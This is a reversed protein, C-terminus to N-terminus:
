QPTVWFHAPFLRYKHIRRDGQEYTEIKPFFSPSLVSIKDIEDGSFEIRLIEKGTVLYVDIIGGRVRFTGPKFDIDNRQYQLATLHALFDKRRIKQGSKIEL